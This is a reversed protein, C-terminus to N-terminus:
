ACLFLGKYYRKGSKERSHGRETMSKGFATQKKPYEGVRECWDRYAKYLVASEVKEDRDIECCEDIFRGLIDMDSKYEATADTVAAPPNLGDRQWALCGGVAWALIGPMEKRLKAPMQKDMRGEFSETFPILRVRRWMALDTGRIDPRHNTSFWIKFTQDFSFFNQRMFRATIKDGGTLAKIKSEALRRGDESESATVFRAGRLAAVDCPVTDDRKRLFTEPTTAVAHDGLMKTIIELFTTKGNCGTGFMLFFVQESVDGTMSYGVSRRVFEILDANKKFVDDLFQLWTPCEADADYVVPAMKTIKHDRCHKLLAGTRLDVTGNRATLLWNDQDMDDLGIAVHHRALSLIASVGNAKETSKLHAYARRRAEDPLIYKKAIEVRLNTVTKNVLREVRRREDIVWQGRRWVFWGGTHDCWHIDDRHESLFRNTNGLETFHFPGGDDAPEPEASPKWPEVNEFSEVIGQRIDEDDRSEGLRDVLDAIDLGEDVAPEVKRVESELGCLAGAIGTAAKRGPADRDPSINVKKGALPGLDTRKWSSTGHSWTTAPLGLKILADACKEGEVLYVTDAKMVAALNYLPLEGKPDGSFCGKGDRPHFPMCTKDPKGDKDIYDVRAVWMLVRVGEADKYTSVTSEGTDNFEQRKRFWEAATEITGWDHKPKEGNGDSNGDVPSAAPSTSPGAGGSRLGRDHGPPYLEHRKLGNAALVEDWNDNVFCTVRISGNARVTISLSPTRDNNKHRGCDCHAKWGRGNKVPDRVKSLVYGIDGGCVKIEDM